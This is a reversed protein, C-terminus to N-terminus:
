RDFDVASYFLVLLIVFDPVLPYPCGLACSRHRVEVSLETRIDDSSILDFYPIGVM